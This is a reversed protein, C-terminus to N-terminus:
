LVKLDTPDFVSYTVHEEFAKTFSTFIEWSYKQLFPKTKLIKLIQKEGIDFPFKLIFESDVCKNELSKKEKFEFNKCEARWCLSVLVKVLLVM